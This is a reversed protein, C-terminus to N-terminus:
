DSPVPLEFGRREQLSATRVAEPTARRMGLLEFSFGALEEDAFIYRRRWHRSEETRPNRRFLHSFKHFPTEVLSGLPNVILSLAEPILIAVSHIRFHDLGRHSHRQEADLISFKAGDQKLSQAV